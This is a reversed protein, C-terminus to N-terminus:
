LFGITKLLYIQAKWSNKGLLSLRWWRVKACCKLSSPAIVNITHSLAGFVVISPIFYSVEKIIMLSNSINYEGNLLGPLCDKMQTTWCNSINATLQPGSKAVEHSCGVKLGETWSSELLLISLSQWKRKWLKPYTCGFSDELAIRIIYYIIHGAIM